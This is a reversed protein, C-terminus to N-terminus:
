NPNPIDFLEIIQIEDLNSYTFYIDEYYKKIIKYSLRAKMKKKKKVLRGKM